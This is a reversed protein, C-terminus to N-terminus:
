MACSYSSVATALVVFDPKAINPPVIHDGSLTSGSYVNSTMGQSGRQAKEFGHSPYVMFRLERTSDAHDREIEERERKRERMEMLACVMSV